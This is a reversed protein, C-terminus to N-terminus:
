LRRLLAGADGRPRVRVRLPGASTAVAGVFGPVEALDLDVGTLRHGGGDVVASWTPEDPDVPSVPDVPSCTDIDDLAALTAGIAKVTAEKRTWIQLFRRDASREPGATVMSQEAPSFRRSMIASRQDIPRLAEVDIGIDVDSATLAVAVLGGSHSINYRAGTGFAAPKGNEDVVVDLSRPARQVAAAVVARSLARGVVFEDRATRGRDTTAEFAAHRRRESADLLLAASDIDVDATHCLWVEVTPTDPM